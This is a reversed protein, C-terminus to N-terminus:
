VAPALPAVVQSVAKAPEDKVLDKARQVREAHRRDIAEHIWAQAPTRLHEPAGHSALVPQGDLTIVLWDRGKLTGTQVELRLVTVTEAECRLTEMHGFVYEKLDYVSADTALIALAKMSIRLLVEDPHGGYFVAENRDLDLIRVFEVWFNKWTEATFFKENPMKGKNEWSHPSELEMLAMHAQMAAISKSRAQTPTLKHHVSKLTREGVKALLDLFEAGRGSLYGDFQIYQYHTIGKYTYGVLSRTGM